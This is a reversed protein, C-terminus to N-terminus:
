LSGQSRKEICSVQPFHTHPHPPLPFFFENLKKKNVKKEIGLDPFFLLFLKKINRAIAKNFMAQVNAIVRWMGGKKKKLKSKLRINSAFYVIM